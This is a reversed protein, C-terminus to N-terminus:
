LLLMVPCEGGRHLLMLLLHRLVELLLLLVMCLLQTAHLLLDWMLLLLLTLCLLLLAHMLLLQENLLLLALLLNRLVLPELLPLTINLPLLLGPCCMLLRQASLLLGQRILEALEALLEIM